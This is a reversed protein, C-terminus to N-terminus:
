NNGGMGGIRDRIRNLLPNLDDRDRVRDLILDRLDNRRELRDRLLDRLDDRTALRDLILDRLDNRRELRDRLLDRLDDRTALRDSILERLNTRNEAREGLLDRLGQASATPATALLSGSAALMLVATAIGRKMSIEGKFDSRNVGGARCRATIGCYSTHRTACAIRSFGSSPCSNPSHWIVSMSTTSVLLQTPSRVALAPFQARAADSRRFAQRHM